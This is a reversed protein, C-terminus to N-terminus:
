GAFFSLTDWIIMRNENENLDVDKASENWSDNLNWSYVMSHGIWENVYSSSSRTFITPDFYSSAQIIEVIAEIEARNTIKYSDYVKINPDSKGKDNVHDKDISVNIM